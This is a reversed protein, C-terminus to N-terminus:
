NKIRSSIGPPVLVGEHQKLSQTGSPKDITCSGALVVLIEDSDQASIAQEGGAPVAIMKIHSNPSKAMDLQAKALAEASDFIQVADVMGPQPAKAMRMRRALGNLAANYGREHCVIGRRPRFPPVMAFSAFIGFGVSMWTNLTPSASPVRSPIPLRMSM